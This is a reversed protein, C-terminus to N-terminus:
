KHLSAYDVHFPKNALKELEVLRKKLEDIEKELDQRLEFIKNYMFTVTYNYDSQLVM